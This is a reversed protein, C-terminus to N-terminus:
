ECTEVNKLLRGYVSMVARSYDQWTFKEQILRAAARGVREMKAPDLALHEIKDALASASNTPVLFGTEGDIIPLGSEQTAVVCLGAAMAEMGASACGDALSPFVYIDASLLFSKLADQPVHGFFRIPLDDKKYHEILKTAGDTSGVVKMECDVNRERLIQIDIVEGM